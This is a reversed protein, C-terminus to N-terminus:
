SIDPKIQTMIQEGTQEGVGISPTCTLTLINAALEYSYCWLRLPAQYRHLLWNGLKKIAKVGQGEAQNQWPSNSEVTTQRIRYKKLLSSYNGAILDPARDAHMGSPIGAMEILPIM